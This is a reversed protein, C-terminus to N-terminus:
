KGASAMRTEIGAQCEILKDQGIFSIDYFPWTNVTPLIIFVEKYTTDSMNYMASSTM